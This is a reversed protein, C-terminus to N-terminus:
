DPVQVWPHYAGPRETSSASRSNIRGKHAMPQQQEAAQYSDGSPSMGSGPKLAKARHRSEGPRKDAGVPVPLQCRWCSHWLAPATSLFSLPLHPCLPSRSVAAQLAARIREGPSFVLCKRELPLPRAHQPLKISLSSSPLLLQTHIHMHTLTTHTHVHIHTHVTCEHGGSACGPLGTSVSM